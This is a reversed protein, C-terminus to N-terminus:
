DELNEEEWIIRLAEDGELMEMKNNDALVKTVDREKELLVSLHSIFRDKELHFETAPLSLLNAVSLDEQEMWVRAQILLNTHIKMNLRLCAGAIAPTSPDYACKCLEEKEHGSV